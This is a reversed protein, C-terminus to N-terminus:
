NRPAHGHERHQSPRHTPPCCSPTLRRFHPTLFLSATSGLEGSTWPPPHPVAGIFSGLSDIRAETLTVRDLGNPIRRRSIPDHPAPRDTNRQASIPTTKKEKKEKAETVWFMSSRFHFGPLCDLPGVFLAGGFLLDPPCHAPIRCVGVCFKPRIQLGCGRGDVVLLSLLESDARWRRDDRLGTSPVPGVYVVWFLRGEGM